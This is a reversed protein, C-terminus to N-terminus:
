TGTTWARGRATNCPECTADFRRAARVYSGCVPCWPYEVTIRPRGVTGGADELMDRLVMADDGGGASIAAVLSGGLTLGVISGDVTATAWSRRAMGYAKAARVAVEVEVALVRTGGGTDQVARALVRAGARWECPGLWQTPTLGLHVLHTRAGGARRHSARGGTGTVAVIDPGWRSPTAAMPVVFGM